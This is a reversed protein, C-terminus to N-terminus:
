CTVNDRFATGPQRFFQRHQEILTGIRQFAGAVRVVDGSEPDGAEPAGSEPDGSEPAGALLLSLETSRAAAAAAGSRLDRLLGIADEAAAALPAPVKGAALAARVQIAASGVTIAACAGILVAERQAEDVGRLRGVLQALKQHQRHEWPLRSPIPGTRGLRQVDRAISNCLRRVNLEPDPPLVIRFAFVACVAGFIYASATNFFAVIDYHIPNTVAALPLFFILLPIVKPMLHPKTSAYAGGAVIPVISLALLPFGDVRTLIGFACLFACLASLVMGKAFDVSAAGASPNTALLGCAVGLVALMSGGSPWATAIWFLSGLGMAIMARLGNRLATRWDLYARLRIPEAAADDDISGIARVTRSLRDLLERAHALAMVDSDSAGDRILADFTDRAVLTVWLLERRTGPDPSPALQEFQQLAEALATTGANDAAARVMPMTHSGAVLAGFLEAVGTRLATARRNIDFSEVSAFEIVEDIRALDLSIRVQEHHASRDAQGQLETRLLAAVASILTAIRRELEMEGVPRHFILSVFAASLVGVTVAAVRALAIDITTNPHEIAGFAILGITYGALVAGYSRFYRLLSALFTTIGLWLSVGALFLVPEQPFAAMLTLMAVAGAATGLLRWQSKSFLAGRVPHAVLLVTSAAWYPSDLQLLYGLYLAIWVGLVVRIVHAWAPPLKQAILHRLLGPGVAGASRSAATM